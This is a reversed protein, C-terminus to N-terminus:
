KDVIPVPRDRENTNYVLPPLISNTVLPTCQKCFYNTFLTAKEKCDLIFTNNVLLPPVKPAKSKNMAKNLIKWYIKDKSQSNHLKNGLCTMYKHKATDIAKQCELRFNDLRNGDDIQFGHKKYAKYLRNKRRIMAKLPKTIWPSDRPLVKKIEHPICNSMINLVVKTFEKVQWNPDPNLNLHQEWPFQKM